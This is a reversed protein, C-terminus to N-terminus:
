VNEKGKGLVDALGVYADSLEHEAFIKFEGIKHDTTLAIKIIAETAEYATEYETTSYRYMIQATNGSTVKYIQYM